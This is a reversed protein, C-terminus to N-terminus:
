RRKQTLKCQVDLQLKASMEEGLDNKAACQYDGSHSLDVGDISLVPGTEQDVEGDRYWTYNTVPPNSRSNCLLSVSSGELVPGAPDTIVITEKPSVPSIFLHLDMDLKHEPGRIIQTQIESQSVSYM